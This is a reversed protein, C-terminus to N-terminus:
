CILLIASGYFSANNSGQIYCSTWSADQTGGVNEQFSTYTFCKYNENGDHNYEYSTCGDRQNCEEACNAFGGTKFVDPFSSVRDNDHDM